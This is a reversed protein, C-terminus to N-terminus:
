MTSEGSFPSWFISVVITSQENHLPSGVQLFSHVLSKQLERMMLFLHFLSKHLVRMVRLTPKVGM